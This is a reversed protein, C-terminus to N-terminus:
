TYLFPKAGIVFKSKVKFFFSYDTYHSLSMICAKIYYSIIKLGTKMEWALMLVLLV